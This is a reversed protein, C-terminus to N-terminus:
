STLRPPFGSGVMLDFDFDFDFDSDSDIRRCSKKEYTGVVFNKVVVATVGGSRRM